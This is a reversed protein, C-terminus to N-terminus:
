DAAAPEAIFLKEQNSANTAETMYPQMINQYISIALRGIINNRMSM